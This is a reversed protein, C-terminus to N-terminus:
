KSFCGFCESLLSVCIATSIIWIPIHVGDETIRRYKAYYVDYAVCSLSIVATIVIGVIYSNVIIM